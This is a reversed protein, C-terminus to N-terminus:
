SLSGSTRGKDKKDYDNERYRVQLEDKTKKTM